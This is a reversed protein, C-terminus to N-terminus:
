WDIQKWRVVCPMLTKLIQDRIGRAICTFPDLYLVPRLKRRTAILLMDNCIHDHFFIHPNVVRQGMRVYGDVGFIQPATLEGSKRKKESKEQYEPSAWLECFFQYADPM